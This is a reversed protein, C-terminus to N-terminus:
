LFKVAAKHTINVAPVVEMWKPFTDIGIFLYRFGGPARPMIGL